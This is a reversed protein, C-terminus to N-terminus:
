VREVERECDCDCDCGVWCEGYRGLAFAGADDADGGSTGGVNALIIFAYGTGLLEAEGFAAAPTLPLPLPAVSYVMALPFPRIEEQGARTINTWELV